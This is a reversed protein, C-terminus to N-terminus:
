VKSAQGTGKEKGDQAEKLKQMLEKRLFKELDDRLECAQKYTVGELLITRPKARLVSYNFETGRKSRVPCVLFKHGFNCNFHKVKAKLLKM